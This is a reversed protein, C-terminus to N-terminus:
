HTNHAYSFFIQNQFNESKDGKIQFKFLISSFDINAFQYLNNKDDVGMRQGREVLYVSVQFESDIDVKLIWSRRISDFANSFVTIGNQKKIQDRLNGLNM